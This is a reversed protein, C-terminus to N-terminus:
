DNKMVVDVHAILYKIEKNAIINHINSTQSTMAATTQGTLKLTESSAFRPIM